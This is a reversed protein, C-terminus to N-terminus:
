ATLAKVRDLVRTLKDKSKNQDAIRVTIDSIERNDADIQVNITDIAASMKEEAKTFAELADEVLTAHDVLKTPEINRVKFGLLEGAMTILSVSPEIRVTM